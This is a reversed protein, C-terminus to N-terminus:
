GSCPTACFHEGCCNKAFVCLEGSACDARKHCPGACTPQICACHGTDVNRVRLCEANNQCTRPRGKGCIHTHRCRAEVPESRSLGLGGALAGSGLLALAGRRSLCRAWAAALRDFRAGDM